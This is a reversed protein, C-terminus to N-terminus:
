RRGGGQRAQDLCDRVWESAYRDGETPYRFGLREATEMSLWRFLDMTAFLARRVDAEDYHAYANCLGAVARPDAWQGLFRGDHWTDYEWGHTARAHWGITQRLLRKM